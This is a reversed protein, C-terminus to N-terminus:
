EVVLLTEPTKVEILRFPDWLVNKACQGLSM